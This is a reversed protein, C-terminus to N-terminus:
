ALEMLKGHTWDEYEMGPQNRMDELEMNMLEKRITLVHSLPAAQRIGIVDAIVRLRGAVWNSMVDSVMATVAATYLPWLLFNGTVAKTNLLTPDEGEKFGLLFPVSGCIDHALRVITTASTELQTELPVPLGLELEFLDNRNNRLYELQVTIIENILIRICRCNNWTAAAWMSDYVHYYDSFVHPSREKVTVTRYFMSEPQNAMWEALQADIAVAAPIFNEANSYDHFSTMTARLNCFEMALDALKSANVETPSQFQLVYDSWEKVFDPTGVHRQISKHESILSYAEGLPTRSAIKEGSSCSRHLEWSINLGLLWQSHGLVPTLKKIHISFFVEYLGLLMVAVLTQNEKAEQESRLRSSVLRLASNYKRNAQFKMEPSQWFTGLGVLGLAEISDSLAPGIIENNYISNLYQFPGNTSSDGLVYNRFFYCAAQDGVPTHLEFPLPICTAMQMLQTATSPPASEVLEVSRAPKRKRKSVVVVSENESRSKKAYHNTQDRFMLDSESRYGTCTRGARICQSCSPTLTDCRCEACARSPKGCYVM